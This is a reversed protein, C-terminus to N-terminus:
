RDTGGGDATRRKDLEELSLAGFRGSAGSSGECYGGSGEEDGRAVGSGSGGEYEEDEAVLVKDDERICFYRGRRFSSEARVPVGRGDSTM